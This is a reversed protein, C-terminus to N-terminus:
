LDECFLFRFFVIGVNYPENYQKTEVFLLGLSQAFFISITLQLCCFMFFVERKERDEAKRKEQGFLKTMKKLQAKAIVEFGSKEADKVDVMIQPFPESKAHRMAQLVTKYPKAETGDGTEDNGNKESTYIPPMDLPSYFSEKLKIFVM